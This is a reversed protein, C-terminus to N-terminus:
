YAKGTEVTGKGFEQETLKVMQEGVPVADKFKQESVLREFQLNAEFRSAVAERGLASEAAESAAPPQAESSPPDNPPADAPPTSKALPRVAAICAIMLCASLGRVRGDLFGRSNVRRFLAMSIM